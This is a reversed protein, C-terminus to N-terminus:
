ELRSVGKTESVDQFATVLAGACCKRNESASQRNEIQPAGSEREWLRDLIPSKTGRVTRQEGSAVRRSDDVATKTILGNLVFEVGRHVSSGITWHALSGIQPSKRASM